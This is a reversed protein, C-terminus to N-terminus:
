GLAPVGSWLTFVLAGFVLLAGCTHAWRSKTFVLYALFAVLVGNQALSSVVQLPTVEGRALNLPVVVAQGILVTGVLTGFFWRRHGRSFYFDELNLQEEVSPKSNSVSTSPGWRLDPLAFASALYLGTFLLLVPLFALANAFLELQLLRFSIWWLQLVILVMNVAWLLPLWHWRVPRSPRVLERLSQALDTIGLGVIISILAVLYELQSM